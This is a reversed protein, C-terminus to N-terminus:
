LHKRNNYANCVLYYIKRLTHLPLNRKLQQRYKEDQENQVSRHLYKYKWKSELLVAQVKGSIHSHRTISNAHDRYIFVVEETNIIGTENALLLATIDDSGWAYPLNYFGGQKLLKKRQFCFDGIFQERHSMTRHYLMSMASEWHPRSATHRMLVGKQNIIDTQGHLIAIDPNQLILQAYTKLCHPLLLDDDGICLVYDNRALSLCYNWQEVLRKAGYNRENRYYRIRPDTYLRIISDIDEPSADNVIILEWNDYTQALVSEISERFFRLKYSPLLISFSISM